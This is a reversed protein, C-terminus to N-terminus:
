LCGVSQGRECLEGKRSKGRHYTVFFGNCKMVSIPNTHQMRIQCDFTKNTKQPHSSNYLLPFGPGLEDSRQVSNENLIFGVKSSGGIAHSTFGGLCVFSLEFLAM